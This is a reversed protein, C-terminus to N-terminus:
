LRINKSPTRKKLAIMRCGTRWIACSTCLFVCRSGEVWVIGCKSGLYTRFRSSVGSVVRWCLVFLRGYTGGVYEEILCCFLLIQFRLFRILSISEWRFQKSDQDICVFHWINLSKGHYTYEASIHISADNAFLNKKKLWSSTLICHQHPRSSCFWCAAGKTEERSTNVSVQCLAICLDLAPTTKNYKKKGAHCIWSQNQALDEVLEESKSSLVPKQGPFNTGSHSWIKSPRCGLVAQM